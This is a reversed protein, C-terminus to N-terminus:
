GLSLQDSMPQVYRAWDSLMRSDDEHSNPEALDRRKWVTEVIDRVRAISGAAVISFDHRGLVSFQDLFFLRDEDETAHVAAVFLPWLHATRLFTPSLPRICEIASTVLQQTQATSCELPRLTAIFYLRAATHIFASTRLLIDSPSLSSQPGATSSPTTTLPSQSFSPPLRQALSRLQHDINDTKALWDSSGMCSTNSAVVERSSDTILSIIHILEYSCGISPDIEDSHSSPLEKIVARKGCASRGLADRVLFYRTVFESVVPSIVPAKTDGNQLRMLDIAASLHTSWSTQCNDSIDFVCLILIAILNYDNVATEVNRIKDRLLRLSRHKHRLATIYTNEHGRASLALAGLALITEMVLEDQLSLPLIIQRFANHRCDVLTMNECVRQLYFEFFRGDQGPLTPFLAPEIIIGPTSVRLPIADTHRFPFLSVSEEDELDHVTTNIFHQVKRKMPIEVRSQTSSPALARNAARGHKVGRQHSEDEWQLQIEYTCTRPM